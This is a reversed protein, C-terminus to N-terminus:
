MPISSLGIELVTVSGGIPALCDLTFKNVICRERNYTDYLQYVRYTPILSIRWLSLVNCVSSYRASPASDRM